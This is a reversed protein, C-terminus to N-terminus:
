IGAIENGLSDQHKPFSILLDSHRGLYWEQQSSSPVQFASVQLPVVLGSLSATSVLTCSHPVDESRFRESGLKRSGFYQSDNYNLSDTFDLTLEMNTENVKINRASGICMVEM